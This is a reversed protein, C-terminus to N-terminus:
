LANFVKYSRNWLKIQLSATEQVRRPIGHSDSGDSAEEGADGLGEEIEDPDVVGDTGCRNM